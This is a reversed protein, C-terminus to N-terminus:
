GFHLCALQRRGPEDLTRCSGNVRYLAREPVRSGSRELLSPDSCMKTLEPAARALIRERVEHLGNLHVAAILVHHFWVMGGRVSFSAEEAVEAFLKWRGSVFSYHTLGHRGACALLTGDASITTYRIPSQNIAYVLPIQNSAPIDAMEENNSM